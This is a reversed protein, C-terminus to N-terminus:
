EVKIVSPPLSVNFERFLKIQWEFLEDRVLLKKGKVVIWEMRLERLDDMMDEYKLDLNMQKAHRRLVFGILMSLFCAYIHGKIRHTNTHYVPSIKFLNKIDKFTQEVQWLEKYREYAEKLHIFKRNTRVVWIGDWLASQEVHKWDVQIRNGKALYRKYGRNKVLDKVDKGELDKLRDVIRKRVEQDHREENENRIVILNELKGEALEVEFSLGWVGDEIREWKDPEERAQKVKRRVEKESSRARVLYQWGKDHYSEVVDLSVMGSDSVICIDRLDFRHRFVDIMKGMVEADSTNGPEVEISVPLGNTLAVGIVLQKKDGRRQRSYGYQTLEGDGEGWYIISTTDLFLVEVKQHFLDLVQWRLIDEIYRWNEGLMSLGRYLHHLQIGAFGYGDYVRGLWGYVSLESFRRYLRAVVIAFIVREFCFSIGKGKSIRECARSLGLRKWIGDCLDVFGWYYRLSLKRVEFFDYLGIRKGKGPLRGTRALEILGSALKELTARKRSDLNDIRGLNALVVQQPNKKGKLRINQVIRLYVRKSGDKNRAEVIRLFM